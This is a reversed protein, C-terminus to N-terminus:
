SKLLYHLTTKWQFKEGDGEEGKGRM